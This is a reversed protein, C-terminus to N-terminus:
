WRSRWGKGVLREESRVYKAERASLKRLLETVVTLKEVAGSIGVLQEFTSFVQSPPLDSHEQSPLLKEGVEGLDAREMYADHMQQETAGSIDQIARALAAWGVNLTRADFLPFPRGTFFIAAARLDADPLARLYEALFKIKELKSRTSSISEATDAFGRM